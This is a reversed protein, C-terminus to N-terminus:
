PCRIYRPIIQYIKGTKTNKTYRSLDPLGSNFDLREISRFNKIQNFKKEKESRFSRFLRLQDDYHGRLICLITPKLGKAITLILTDYNFTV